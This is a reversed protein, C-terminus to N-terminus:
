IDVPFSVADDARVKDRPTFRPAPTVSKKDPGLRQEAPAPKVASEPNSSGPQPAKLAFLDTALLPFIIIATLILFKKMLFGYHGPSM